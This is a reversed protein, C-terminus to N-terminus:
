RRERHQVDIVIERMQRILDEARDYYVPGNWELADWVFGLVEFLHRAPGQELNLSNQVQAVIDQAHDRAGLNGQRAQRVLIIAKELLLQYEKLHGATVIASYTYTKRALTDTWM